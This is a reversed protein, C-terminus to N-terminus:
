IAVAGKAGMMCYGLAFISCFSFRSVGTTGRFGGRFHGAQLEGRTDNMGHDSVPSCYTVGRYKYQENERWSKKKYVSISFPTPTLIGFVSGGVAQAAIV